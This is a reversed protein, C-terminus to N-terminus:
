AEAEPWARFSGVEVAGAHCALRLAEAPTAGRALSALLRHTTSKPLELARAIGSVGAAGVGHLHFLVDLAKEV